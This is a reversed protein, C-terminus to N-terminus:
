QTTETGEEPKKIQTRSNLSKNQIDEKYEKFISMTMTKFKSASTEDGESDVLDEKTNNNFKQFTLTRQRGSGMNGNQSKNM